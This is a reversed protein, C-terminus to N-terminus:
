IQKKESQLAPISLWNNSFVEQSGGSAIQPGDPMVLCWFTAQELNLWSCGGGRNLFYSNFCNAMSSYIM